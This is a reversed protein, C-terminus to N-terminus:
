AAIHIWPRDGIGASYPVIVLSAPPREFRVLSAGYLAVLLAPSALYVRARLRRTLGGTEGISTILIAGDAEDAMSVTFRGELAGARVPESYAGPRWTRVPSPGDPNVRELVSLAKHVGAEAVATAAAARYRAGARTQQQNMFWVFSASSSAVALMIVLVVLLAM